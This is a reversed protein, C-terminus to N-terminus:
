VAKNYSRNKEDCKGLVVAYSQYMQKWYIAWKWKSFMFVKLCDVVYFILFYAFQDFILWKQFCIVKEISMILIRFLYFSWSQERLKYKRKSFIEFIARWDVAPTAFNTSAGSKPEPAALRPPELGEVRVVWYLFIM